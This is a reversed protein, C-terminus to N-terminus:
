LIEVRHNKAREELWSDYLKKRVQTKHADDLTASHKTVVKFIEFANGDSSPFPGLVAGAESNFVKAELESQLAGRTVTGIIGGRDRTEMDISHEKALEHFSDPDDELLAALERASGESTLVIHGVEISDFEPSNLSFYEDVASESTVQDVVAEKQLLETVYTEFEDLNVGLNNLFDMTAKARHLGQVRRIQDFREQIDEAPVSVGAKQAGLVTVRDRIMDELIQEFKGNLKLYRVLDNADIEEDDVKALVSMKNKTM